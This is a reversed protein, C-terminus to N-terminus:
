TLSELCISTVGLWDSCTCGSSSRVGKREPEKMKQAGKVWEDGFEGGSKSEDGFESALSKEVHQLRDASREQLEQTQIRQMQGTDERTIPEEKQVVINLSGVSTIQHPEKKILEVPCRTLGKRRFLHRELRPFKGTYNRKFKKVKAMEARKNQFDEKQIHYKRPLNELKRINEKKKDVEKLNKQQKKKEKQPLKM